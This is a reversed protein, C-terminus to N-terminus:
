VKMCLFSVVDSKIESGQKEIAPDKCECTPAVLYVMKASSERQRRMRERGSARARQQECRDALGVFWEDLTREGAVFARQGEPVGDANMAIRARAVPCAARVLPLAGSRSAGHARDSPLHVAPALFADVTQLSALALASLAIVRHM